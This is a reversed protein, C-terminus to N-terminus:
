RREDRGSPLCPCRDSGRGAALVVRAQSADGLRRRFARGAAAPKSGPTAPRPEGPM